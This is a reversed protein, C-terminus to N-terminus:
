KKFLAAIADISTGIGFFMTKLEKRVKNTGDVVDVHSWTWGGLLHLYPYPAFVFGATILPSVDRVYSM